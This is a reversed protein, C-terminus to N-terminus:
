AGVEVTTPARGRRPGFLWAEAEARRLADLGRATLTYRPDQDQSSPAGCPLAFPSYDANWGVSCVADVRSDKMSVIARMLPAGCHRCAGAQHDASAASATSQQLM